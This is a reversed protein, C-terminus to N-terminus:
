RYYFMKDYQANCILFSVKDIQEDNVAFFSLNDYMNVVLVEGDTVETLIKNLNEILFDLLVNFGIQDRRAVSEIFPKLESFKMTIEPREFILKQM